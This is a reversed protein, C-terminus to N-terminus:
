QDDEIYHKGVYAYSFEKPSVCLEANDSLFIKDELLLEYAKKMSARAEERTEYTQYAGGGNRMIFHIKWLKTDQLKMANEDLETKKNFIGM